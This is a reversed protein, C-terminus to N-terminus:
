DILEFGFHCYGTLDSIYDAVDDEEIDSPIYIEKPLYELEEKFEIDWQINRARMNVGRYFGIKITNDLKLKELGFHGM